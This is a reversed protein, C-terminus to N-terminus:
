VVWIKIQIEGNMKTKLFYSGDKSKVVFMLREGNEDVCDPDNGFPNLRYFITKFLQYAEYLAKEKNEFTQTTKSELNTIEQLHLTYKTM